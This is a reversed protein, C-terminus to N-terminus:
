LCLCKGFMDGDIFGELYGLEIGDCTVGLVLESLPYPGLAQNEIVCLLVIRFSAIRFLEEWKFICSSLSSCLSASFEM